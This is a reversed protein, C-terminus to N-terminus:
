ENVLVARAERVTLTTVPGPVSATSPIPDWTRGDVSFDAGFTTDVRVSFTGPRGYIHTVDGDPYTGGTSSTPGFSTGDGFVYTFGVLKPRIRVPIGRLTSSDVEGPEFGTPTWGVQYFTRLNVLTVNGAPQTSVQPKAWPTRMFQAKIDAMSLTPRAGPAVDAACTLGVSAWGDIEKGAAMTRRWIRLLPGIEEPPCSKLAHPCSVDQTYTDPKAQACDNLSRYEYYPADAARVPVVASGGDGPFKPLALVEERSLSGIVVEKENTECTSWEGCGGGSALATPAGVTLLLVSLALAAFGQRM